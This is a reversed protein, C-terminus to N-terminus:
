YYAFFRFIYQLNTQKIAHSVLSTKGFRRPAYLLINLGAKMDAILERTEEARNCFYEESVVSGYSFPNTKLEQGKKYRFTYFFDILLM